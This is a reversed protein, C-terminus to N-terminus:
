YSVFLALAKLLDKLGRDYNNRFDLYQLRRLRFPISCDESIVPIVTKNEELAFSVEDMVDRSKVSAPSLIVVLQPCSALAGEVAQDWRQGPVIDVLDLWVNAGAAKLDRALRIAFDSDERSYSFFATAINRSQAAPQKGRALREEEALERAQKQRKLRERKALATKKKELREQEALAERERELREREIEAQKAQELREREAQRVQELRANALRNKERELRQQEAQDRAHKERELRDREIEAQKEQELREREGRELQAKKEAALREHGAQVKNPEL